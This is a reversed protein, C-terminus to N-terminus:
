EDADDDTAHVDAATISPLGRSAATSLVDAVTVTRGLTMTLEGAKRTAEVVVERRARVTTTPSSCHRRHTAM